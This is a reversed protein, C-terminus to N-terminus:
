LQSTKGHFELEKAMLYRVIHASDESSIDDFQFATRKKAQANLKDSQYVCSAKAFVFTDDMNFLACVQQSLAYAKPTYIAFGGAGLNVREIPWKESDSLTQYARKLKLYLGEYHNLKEVMLTIVQALWNGKSALASLGSIYQETRFPKPSIKHSRQV